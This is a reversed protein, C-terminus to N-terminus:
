KKDKIQGTIKTHGERKMGGEGSEKYIEEKSKMRDRGKIEM